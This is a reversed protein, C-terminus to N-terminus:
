FRPHPVIKQKEPCPLNSERRFGRCQGSDECTRGALLQSPRLGSDSIRNAPWTDILMLWKRETRRPWVHLLEQSARFRIPLGVYAVTGDQKQEGHVAQTYTFDLPNTQFVDVPFLVGDGDSSRFLM